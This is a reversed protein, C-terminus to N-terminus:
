SPVAYTSVYLCASFINFTQNKCSTQSNPTIPTYYSCWSTQSNPTIPIYISLVSFLIPFLVPFKSLNIWIVLWSSMLADCRLGLETFCDPALKRGILFLISKEKSVFSFHYFPLFDQSKEALVKDREPIQIFGIEQQSVKNLCIEPPITYLSCVAM